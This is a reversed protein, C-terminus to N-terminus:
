LPLINIGKLILTPQLTMITTFIGHHMSCFKHSIYIHLNIPLVMLFVIFRFRYLCMFFGSKSMGENMVKMNEMTALNNHKEIALNRIWHRWSRSFRIMVLMKRIQFNSKRHSDAFYFKVKVITNKSVYTNSQYM